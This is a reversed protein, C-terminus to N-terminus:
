RSPVATRLQASKQYKGVPSALRLLSDQRKQDLNEREPTTVYLLFSNGDPPVHGHKGTIQWDGRCIPRELTTPSGDIATLFKELRERDATSL